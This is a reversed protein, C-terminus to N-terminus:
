YKSTIDELYKVLGLYIKKASFRNEYLRFANRAMIKRKEDDITIENLVRLFDNANGAQYTYGCKYENIIIALEGKLSSLIPLGGSFYEFPKNPLSQTANKTYCVLGVDSMKILATITINNIWGLFLVNALGKCQQQWETSKEGDGCFVFLYREDGKKELIKAAEIITDLDYTLGFTGIFCCIMKNKNIRRKELDLSIEKFKTKSITNQQYGIPFVKDFFRKERKAYNLGWNLYESSVAILATANKFVRKNSIFMPLLLIKFFWRLTYPIMKLFVDPWLDRIDIIVPIKNAQAYSIVALALNSIPFSAVIIDPTDENVISKKFSRTVNKHHLIRDISLNKKYEKAFFLVIQYKHNITIRKTHHYRQKKLQHNFTSTWYIVAHGHKVLREALIGYRHLRVPGDIPLPEGLKILWVKL